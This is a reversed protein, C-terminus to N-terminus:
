LHDLYYRIADKENLHTINNNNKYENFDFGDPFKYFREEFRGHKAYHSIIQEDSWEQMNHAEKYLTCNFGYPLKYERCEYQGHNIFHCKINDNSWDNMSYLEKYYQYNFGLPLEYDRNNMKNYNMYHWMVGNENWGELNYDKRYFDFNVHSISYERNEFQGHNIYHWSIDNDSWDTMNYLQKYYQHNFGYPFNFTKYLFDISHDFSPANNFDINNFLNDVHVRRNERISKHINFDKCPHYVKNLDEIWLNWNNRYVVSNLEYPCDIKLNNQYALTNFLVEHFFLTNRQKVYDRVLSLMNKSVRCACVMSRLWPTDIYNIINNWHPWTSTNKDYQIINEATLLDSNQYNNDINTLVSEQLIFVDDEIIWIHDYSRNLLSFYFICKDWSLVKNPVTDTHILANKYGYSSCHDDNIQICKVNSNLSKFLESYDRYNEDVFYYVDHDKFTNVFNLWISSPRRTVIAVAINSKHNSM